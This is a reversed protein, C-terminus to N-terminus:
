CRECSEFVAIIKHCWIPFFEIGLAADRGVFGYSTPDLRAVLDYEAMSGGYWLADDLSQILLAFGQLPELGEMQEIEALGPVKLSFHLCMESGVDIEELLVRSLGIGLMSGLIERTVKM